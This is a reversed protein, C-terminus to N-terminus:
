LTLKTIETIYNTPRPKGEHNYFYWYPNNDEEQKMQNLIDFTSIIIREEILLYINKHTDIAYPYPVDNNGVPSYYEEIEHLSQFSYIYCGIFVYTLTDLQLLMTNGDYEPGYSNSYETM